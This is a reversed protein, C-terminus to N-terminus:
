THAFFDAAEAVIEGPGACFDVTTPMAHLFTMGYPKTHLRSDLLVVVGRDDPSRLLRGIGQRLRLVADRVMFDVFPNEGRAQILDFRASVWPDTPVLFPLKTVVVLELEDGPLDVGEWFTNTGLLIAHRERRFRQMLEAPPAAGQTLIVPKVPGWGDDLDLEGPAPGDERLLAAVGKLAAHSTFLVLTKRLTARVLRRVLAAVAGQWHASDPAPFAPTTLFRTRGAHDFPSPILSEILPRRLAHLGLERAMHTFDGGVSLTGSTLVPALDDRRWLDGLLRGSELRTAGVARFAGDREPDLWVVWEPDDEGALFGVHRELEGLMESVRAMTALEEDLGEPLLPAQELAAAFRAYARDAEACAELLAITAPGVPGFVDDKERVRLRGPYRAAGGALATFRGSLATLWRRYAAITALQTAGVADLLPLADLCPEGGRQLARAVAHIAAPQVGGRSAAGLIDELVGARAADCNIEFADLAAEPLRHAEDVIVHDYEGVLVHAAAFDFMMLSHNVVVLRAERALRRARQVHCEPKGQCISPSCPEPSDFIENMHRRLAPHDQVEERLGETTDALWIRFSALAWADDRGAVPRELFRLERTRCLYNSRGMLLRHKLEPFLPALRPLDAGLLQAQLARTHTSVIGRGGTRELHALLPVLYALSKGVGTGAEVLLPTGTRLAEAVDRGMVAQAERPQFVGARVAGLGAPDLLWDGLESPDSPVPRAAAPRPQPARPAAEWGAFPDAGAAALENVVTLVTGAERSCSVLLDRVHERLEPALAAWRRAGQWLVAGEERLDQEAALRDSLALRYGSGARRPDILSWLFGRTVLLRDRAATFDFGAGDIVVVADAPLGGLDNLGGCEQLTGPDHADLLLLRGDPRADLALSLWLSRRADTGM